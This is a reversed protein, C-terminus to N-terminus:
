AVERADDAITPELGREAEAEGADDFYKLGLARFAERELDPPLTWSAFKEDARERATQRKRFESQSGAVRVFEPRRADMEFHMARLRYRKLARQDLDRVVTREVDHIVLRVVADEIGAADVRAAIVADLEKPTLDRAGIPELEIYRRSSEIPHWTRTRTALDIELMGKGGIGERREEALEGWPDSSTYDISGAYCANPAVERMVHYHGLAVYTFREAGLQARTIEKEALAARVHAPLSRSMMGEVEGHLLLVNLRRSEDPVLPARAGPADPVALISLDHAPVDIRQAGDTVVRVGLARFVGLICETDRSRPLDHNGAVIAVLTDPLAARLRSLERSAHVVSGNSPRPTHFVDGAIVVVEPALTVARDIVRTFTRAVDDERQRSGYQQFGLHLDALHLLRM